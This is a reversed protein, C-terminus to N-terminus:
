QVAEPAHPVSRTIELFMRGWRTLGLEADSVTANTYSVSIEGASRSAVPGSEGGALLGALTLYHAALAVHARVTKDRYSDLEIMAEADALAAARADADIASAGPVRVLLDADTAYAWAM